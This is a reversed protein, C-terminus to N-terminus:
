IDEFEASFFTHKGLSLKLHDSRDLYPLIFTDARENFFIAMKKFITLQNQISREIAQETKGGTRV